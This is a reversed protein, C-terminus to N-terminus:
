INEEDENRWKPPLPVGPVNESALDFDANNRLLPDSIIEESNEKPEEKEEEWQFSEKHKM